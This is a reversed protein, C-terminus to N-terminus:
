SGNRSSPHRPGKIGFTATPRLHFEDGGLNQWGRPTSRGPPPSGQLRRQHAEKLMRWERRAAQHGLMAALRRTGKPASFEKVLLGECSKDDPQILRRYLSESVVRGPVKQQMANEIARHLTSDGGSWRRVGTM